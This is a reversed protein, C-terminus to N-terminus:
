RLKVLFDIRLEGAFLNKFKEIGEEKTSTKKSFHSYQDGLHLLRFKKEKLHEIATKLVFHGKPLDKRAVSASVAYYSDHLSHIFFASSVPEHNYYSTVLTASGDLLSKLQLNWTEQSRTHKGSSAFHLHQLERLSNKLEYVDNTTYDWVKCNIGLSEAQKTATLVSKTWPKLTNQLNICRTFRHSCSISHNLLQEFIPTKATSTDVYFSLGSKEKESSHFPKLQSSLFKKIEIQIYHYDLNTLSESCVIVGPLGFYGNSKGFKDKTLLIGFAAKGSQAILGSVSQENEFYESYYPVHRSDYNSSVAFDSLLVDMTPSFFQDTETIFRM